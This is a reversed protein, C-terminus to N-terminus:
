WAREGLLLQSLESRTNAGTKHLVAKVHDKATHLAIELAAALQANSMGEMVLTAVERERTTLGFALMRTRQVQEPTAHDILVIARGDDLGLDFRRFTVWEGSPARFCGPDSAREAAYVGHPIPQHGDLDLSRLLEHAAPSARRVNGRPDLEVVGPALRRAKKDHTLTARALGLALLPAVKEIRRVDREDFVPGKRYLHLYGWVHGGLALAARLEDTFGKPLFITRMRPSKGPDGNTTQAITVVSPASPRGLADLSGNGGLDSLLNVDDRRRELAFLRRADQASLGDGVSSTIARSVPDCSNMCYADFHVYAHLLPRVAQRFTQSDNGAFVLRGLKPPM